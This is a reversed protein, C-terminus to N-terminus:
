KTRKQKRQEVKPLGKAEAWRDVRKRWADKDVPKPLRASAFRAAQERSFTKNKLLWYCLSLLQDEETEWKDIGLALPDGLGNWVADLALEPDPFNHLQVLWAVQGAVRLLTKSEEIGLKHLAAYADWLAESKIPLEFRHGKNPGPLPFILKILEPVEDAKSSNNTM